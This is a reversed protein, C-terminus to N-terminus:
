AGDCIRVKVKLNGAFCRDMSHVFQREHDNIPFVTGQTFKLARVTAKLPQPFIRVNASSERQKILTSNLNVVLCDPPSLSVSFQAVACKSDLVAMGTGSNMGGRDLDVRKHTSHEQFSRDYAM